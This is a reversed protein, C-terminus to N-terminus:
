LYHKAEQKKKIDILIDRLVKRLDPKQGVPVFAWCDFKVNVEDYVAKALTTKGLGGPGLVSVVKLEKEYPVDGDGGVSLMKILEDRPEDMGVLQSKQKYIHSLRPDVNVAIAPRVVINDIKYRDRRETMEQVQKKIVEIAGAIDHRAKAKTLDFLKGMKKLIRQVTHDSDAPEPGNGVRIIFADIVDEMDYSKERVECAWVKIQIQEDDLQEWPPVTAVKSLAAYMSELERSLYEVDSRVGKQLKYEKNLLQLMKSPLTAMAGTVLDM